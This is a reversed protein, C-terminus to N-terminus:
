VPGTAGDADVLTDLEPEVVTVASSMEMCFLTEGDDNVAPPIAVNVSVTRTLSYTLPEAIVKVSVNGSPM